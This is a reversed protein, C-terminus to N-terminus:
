RTSEMLTFGTGIACSVILINQIHIRILKQYKDGSGNVKKDM